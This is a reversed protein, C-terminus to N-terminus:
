SFAMEFLTADDAISDFYGAFYRAGYGCAVTYPEQMLTEAYKNWESITGLVRSYIGNLIALETHTYNGESRSELDFYYSDIRKHTLEPLQDMGSGLLEFSKLFGLDILGSKFQYKSNVLTLTTASGFDFLAINMNEFMKLAGLVKIQRDDGLERYIDKLLKKQELLEENFEIPFWLAYQKQLNQLLVKTKDKEIANLSKRTSVIFVRFTDIGISGSYQHLSASIASALDDIEFFTQRNFHYKVLSNGIDIILLMLETEELIYLRIKLGLVAKLYKSRLNL